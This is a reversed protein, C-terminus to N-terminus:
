FNGEPLSNYIMPKFLCILNELDMNRNGSLIFPVKCLIRIDSIDSKVLSWRGKLSNDNLNRFM